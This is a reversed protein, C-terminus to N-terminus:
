GISCIGALELGPLMGKAPKEKSGKAMRSKLTELYNLVPM